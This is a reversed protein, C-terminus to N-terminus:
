RRERSLDLPTPADLWDAVWWTTMSLGLTAVTAEVVMWAWWPDLSGDPGRPLMWYAAALPVLWVGAVLLLWAATRLAAIGIRRWRLVSPITSGATARDTTHM